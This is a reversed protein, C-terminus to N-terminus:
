EYVDEISINNFADPDYNVDYELEAIDEAIDLVLDAFQDYDEFVVVIDESPELSELWGEASAIMNADNKTGFLVRNMFLCSKKHEGETIRFMASLMPRGDKTEKVELKEFKGHYVGEEIEAYEGTGGNKKIEEADSRLSKLDVQENFKSFKGMRKNGGQVKIELKIYSKPIIKKRSYGKSKGWHRQKYEWDNHWKRARM